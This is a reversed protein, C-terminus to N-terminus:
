GRDARGASRGSARLGFVGRGGAHASYGPQQALLHHHGSGGGARARRRFPQAPRYVAGKRGRHHLRARRGRRRIETTAADYSFREQPEAGFGALFGLNKSFPPLIVKQRCDPAGEELSSDHRLCSQLLEDRRNKNVTQAGEELSSDHRLCSRLLLREDEGIRGYGRGM